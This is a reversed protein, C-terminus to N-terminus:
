AYEVETDLLIERSLIIAKEEVSVIVAINNKLQNIIKIKAGKKFGLANLRGLVNKDSVNVSKIILPANAHARLMNM